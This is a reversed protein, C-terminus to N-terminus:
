RRRAWVMLLTRALFLSPKHTEDQEGICDILESANAQKELTIAFTHAPASIYVISMSWRVSRSFVEERIDFPYGVNGPTCIIQVFRPTRICGSVPLEAREPGASPRLRSLIHAEPFSGRSM